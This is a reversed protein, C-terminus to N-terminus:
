QKPVGDDESDWDSVETGDDRFVAGADQLRSYLAVFEDLSMANARKGSLSLEELIAHVRQKWASHVVEESVAVLSAKPASKAVVNRLSFLARM